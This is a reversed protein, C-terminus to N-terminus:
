GKPVLVVVAMDWVTASSVMTFVFVLLLSPFCEHCCILASLFDWVNVQVQQQFTTFLIKKWERASINYDLNTVMLELCSGVNGMEDVDMHPSPTMMRPGFGPSPTM